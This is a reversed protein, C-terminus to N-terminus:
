PSDTRRNRRAIMVRLLLRIAFLAVAVIFLPLNWSPPVIRFYVLVLLAAMVLVAALGFRNAAQETLLGSSTPIM